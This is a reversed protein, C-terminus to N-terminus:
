PKAQIMAIFKAVDDANVYGKVDDGWDDGRYWIDNADWAAIEATPSPTVPQGFTSLSMSHNACYNGAGWQVSVTWCNDFTMTFGRNGTITFM